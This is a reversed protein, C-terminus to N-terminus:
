YNGDDRMDKLLGVLHQANELRRKFWSEVKDPEFDASNHWISTHSYNSCEDCYYILNCDEADSLSVELESSDDLVITVKPTGM